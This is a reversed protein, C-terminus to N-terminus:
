GDLGVLPIGAAQMKMMADHDHEAHPAASGTKWDQAGQVLGMEARAIRFPDGWVSAWPLGTTLLVLALGSVWFGTVAHLDRLFVRNCNPGRLYSVRGSAGNKQLACCM